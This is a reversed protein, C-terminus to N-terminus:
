TLIQMYVHVLYSSVRHERGSELLTLLNESELLGALCETRELNSLENIIWYPGQCLIGM